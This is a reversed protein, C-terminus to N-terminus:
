LNYCEPTKKEVKVAIIIYIIIFFICGISYMSVCLFNFNNSNIGNNFALSYMLMVATNYPLIGSTSVSIGDFINARIEPTKNIFLKNIFCSEISMTATNNSVCIIGIMLIFCSILNSLFPSKINDQIKVILKEIKDKPLFEVLTFLLILFFVVGSVGEIGSIIPSNISFLDGIKFFGLFLSIVIACIDSVILCNIVNGTKKLVYIMIIPVFLLLLPKLSFSYNIISVNSTTLYGLVIYFITSIIFVFIAVKTRSKMMNFLDCNTANVSLITTDSIPSLHDGFFSGSSIAGLLIYPNIGYKLGFPVFLPVAFSITGTSTGCITSIFCCVFFIIVLLFTSNLGIELFISTLSDSLGSCKLVNSLVGSFIFILLCIVLHNNQFGDVCKKGFTKKNSNFIYAFMLGLFASIWFTKLSARKLIVLTIISFVFLIFPLFKIFTNNEIKKIM